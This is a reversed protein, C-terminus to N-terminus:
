ARAGVPAHGNCYGLIDNLQIVGGEDLELKCDFEDMDLKIVIHAKFNGAKMTLQMSGFDGVEPQLRKFEDIYEKREAYQQDYEAIGSKLRELERSLSDYHNQNVCYSQEHEEIHYPRNKVAASRVFCVGIVFAILSAQLTCNHELFWGFLLMTIVALAVLVVSFLCFRAFEHESELEYGLPVEYMKEAAEDRLSNAEDVMKTMQARLEVQEQKKQLMEERSRM